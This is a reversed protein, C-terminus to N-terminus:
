LLDQYNEALVGLVEPDPLGQLFRVWLFYLVVLVQPDRQFM